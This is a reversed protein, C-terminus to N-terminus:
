NNVQVIDFTKIDVIEPLPFPYFQEEAKGLMYVLPLFDKTLIFFDFFVLKLCM